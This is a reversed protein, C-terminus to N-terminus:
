VPHPPLKCWSYVSSGNFKQSVGCAQAVESRLAFLNTVKEEDLTSLRLNIHGQTLKFFQIRGM